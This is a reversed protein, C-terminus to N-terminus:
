TLVPEQTCLVPTLDALPYSGVVILLSARSFAVCLGLAMPAQSPKYRSLVATHTHTHTHVRACTRAHVLVAPYSCPM